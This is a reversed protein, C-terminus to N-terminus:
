ECGSFTYVFLLFRLLLFALLSSRFRQTCFYSRSLTIKTDKRAEDAERQTSHKQPM